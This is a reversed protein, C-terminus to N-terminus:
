RRKALTGAIVDVFIDGIREGCPFGYIFKLGSLADGIKNILLKLEDSGSNNLPRYSFMLIFMFLEADQFGSFDM